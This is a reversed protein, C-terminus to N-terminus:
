FGAAGSAIACGDPAAELTSAYVSRVKSKGESDRDDSAAYATFDHDGEFVRALRIM